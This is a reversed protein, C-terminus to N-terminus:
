HAITPQARFGAALLAALFIMSAAKLSIPRVPRLPSVWRATALSARREVRRWSRSSRSARLGARRLRECCTALASISRKLDSRSSSVLAFVGAASAFSSVSRSTAETVSRPRASRRTRARARPRRLGSRRRAAQFNTRRRASASRGPGPAARCGHARCPRSCRRRPGRRSRRAHVRECRDPRRPSALQAPASGGARSAAPRARAPAPALGARSACSASSTAPSPSAPPSTRTRARARRPRSTRSGSSSSRRDRPEAEVARDVQERIVRDGGRPGSAELAVGTLGELRRLLALAAKPNPVAAVYHPVAAWLSASSIGRQRCADHLVGVIGTPGEYNPAARPRPARGPGRRLRPRHDPGADHPRRRRDPRRPHRGDRRRLQEAVDAIAESFTRWRLNPETGSLLVLDREAGAAEAALLTNGPWEIERAQGEALRVTPRTSRSTSSSRPISTRSSRPTSRTPSRARAGHDRRRRRRELGRFACVLSRRACSPRSGKGSSRTWETSVVRRVRSVDPGSRLCRLSAVAAGRALRPQRRGALRRDGLQSGPLAELAVVGARALVTQGRAVAGGVQRELKAVAGPRDGRAHEALGVADRSRKSRPSRNADAALDLAEAPSSLASISSAAARTPSAPRGSGGRRRGRGRPAPPIGRAGSARPGRRAGARPRRSSSKPASRDGLLEAARRARAAPVVGVEAPQELVRDRHRRQHALQALQM